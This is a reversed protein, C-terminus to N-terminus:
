EIVPVFLVTGAYICSAEAKEQMQNISRICYYIDREDLEYDVGYEKYLSYSISHVTDGGKVNYAKITYTKGYQNARENFVKQANNYEYRDMLCPVFVITAVLIMLVITGIISREKKLM